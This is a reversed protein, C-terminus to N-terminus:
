KMTTFLAITNIGKSSSFSNTFLMIGSQNIISYSILCNNISLSFEDLEFLLYIYILGNINVTSRLLHKWPTRFKTFTDRKIAM